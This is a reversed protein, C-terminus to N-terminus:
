AKRRLYVLIGICVFAVLAMAPITIYGYDFTYRSSCSVSGAACTGLASAVAPSIQQGYHYLAIAGGVVSMPLVYVGIRYDKRLAAIGLILVLPYMLIRQYWCLRCPEWGLVDSYFLSGLMAALAVAFAMWLLADRNQRYLEYMIGKRFFAAHAIFLLIGISALLTLTPLLWQVFDPLVM